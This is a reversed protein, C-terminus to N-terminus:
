DGERIPWRYGNESWIRTDTRWRLDYLKSKFTEGWGNTYCIPPFDPGGNGRYGIIRPLDGLTPTSKIERYQFYIVAGCGLMLPALLVAIFSTGILVKHGILDLPISTKIEKQKM